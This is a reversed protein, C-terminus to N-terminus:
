NILNLKNLNDIDEAIVREGQNYNSALSALAQNVIETAKDPNKIEEKSYLAKLHDENNKFLLYGFGVIGALSAAIGIKRILSFERVKNKPFEIHKTYEIKKEKDYFEFLGKIIVNEASNDDKLYNKLYKEEELTTEGKRYIRLLDIINYKM